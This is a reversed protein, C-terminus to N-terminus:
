EERGSEKKASSERLNALERLTFRSMSPTGGKRKPWRVLDIPPGIQPIRSAKEFVEALYTPWFEFEKPSRNLDDKVADLVGFALIPRSQLDCVCLKGFTGNLCAIASPDHAVLM